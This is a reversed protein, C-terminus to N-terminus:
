PRCWAAIDDALVAALAPAALPEPRRWLTPGDVSLDCAREDGALRVTRTERGSAEPETVGMADSLRTGLAYAGSALLGSRRLDTLLSAGSVPSLRWRRAAGIDLLAGGRIAVSSAPGQGTEQALLRDADM